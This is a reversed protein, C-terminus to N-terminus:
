VNCAIGLDGCPSFDGLIACEEGKFAEQFALVSATGATATGAYAGGALEVCAAAALGKSVALCALVAETGHVALAIGGAGSAIGLGGRLLRDGTGLPQCISGPTSQLQTGRGDEADYFGGGILNPGGCIVGAAQVGATYSGRYGFPNEDGANPRPDRDASDRSATTRASTSRTVRLIRPAPRIPRM